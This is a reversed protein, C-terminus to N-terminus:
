YTISLKETVLTGSPDKYVIMYNGPIVGKLDWTVEGTLVRFSKVLTGSVDLLYLTGGSGREMAIRVYDKAPNPYVKLAVSAADGSKATGPYYYTRSRCERSEPYFVEVWYKQNANLDSFQNFFRNAGVQM